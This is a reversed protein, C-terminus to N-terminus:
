VAILGTLMLDEIVISVSVVGYDEDISAIIKKTLHHIELLTLDSKILYEGAPLHYTTGNSGLIQRSFGGDEMATHLATYDPHVLNNTKHLVVRTLFHSM